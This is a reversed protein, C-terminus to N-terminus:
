ILSLCTSLEEMMEEVPLVGAGEMEIESSNRGLTGDTGSPDASCARDIRLVQLRGYGEM